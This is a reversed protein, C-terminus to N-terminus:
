KNVLTDSQASNTISGGGICGGLGYISGKDDIIGVRWGCVM